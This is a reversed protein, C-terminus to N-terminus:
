GEGGGGGGGDDGDSGTDGGGTDPSSTEGGSSDPGGTENGAETSTEPGGGGDLSGSGYGGGFDPSSIEVTYSAPLDCTCSDWATGDCLVYTSGSCDSWSPGCYDDFNDTVVAYDAVSDCTGYPTFTGVSVTASCATSVTFAVVPLFGLPILLARM